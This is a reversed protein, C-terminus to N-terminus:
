PSVPRSAFVFRKHLPYNWFVSVFIAVVVRALVYPAGARVLLWEGASNLLLSAGSVLAYRIMQGAPASDRAGHGLFTWARNVSFNTVAGASAGLGTAVHPSVGALEVWAIMTSFDVFTAVISAAQHRVFLRWGGAKSQPATM